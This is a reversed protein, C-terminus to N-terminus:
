RGDLGAAVGAPAPQRLEEPVEFQLVAACFREWEPTRAGYVVTASDFCSSTVTLDEWLYLIQTPPAGELSRCGESWGSFESLKRLEYARCYIPM